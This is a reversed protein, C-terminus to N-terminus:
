LPYLQALAEVEVRIVELSGPRAVAWGNARQQEPNAYLLISYGPLGIQNALALSTSAKDLAKSRLSDSDM